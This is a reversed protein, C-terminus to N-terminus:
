YINLDNSSVTEHEDPSYMFNYFIPSRRHHKDIYDWVSSHLSGSNVNHNYRIQGMLDDDGDDINLLHKGELLLGAEVRELESDMM